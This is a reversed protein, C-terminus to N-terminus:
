APQPLACHRRFIKTRFFYNDGTEISKEFKPPCWFWGIKWTCNGLDTLRINFALGQNSLRSPYCLIQCIESSLQFKLSSIISFMVAEKGGCLKCWSTSYTLNGPTFFFHYRPVNRFVLVRGQVSCGPPHRLVATHTHTHTHTHAAWKVNVDFIQIVDSWAGRAKLPPKVLDIVVFCQAIIRFCGLPNQILSFFSFGTTPFWARSTKRCKEYLRGSHFLIKPM